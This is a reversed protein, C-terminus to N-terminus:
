GPRALAGLEDDGTGTVTEPLTGRGPHPGRATVSFAGLQGDARVVGPDYTPPGVRWGAPLARACPM